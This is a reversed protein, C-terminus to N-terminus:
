FKTISIRFTGAVPDVTSNAHNLFRVTVSDNGSVWAFYSANVTMVAPPVGLSVAAGMEAGPVAAVLDAYSRSGTNPFNLTVMAVLTNTLEYVNTINFYNTATLYNTISIHNTFVFQDRITVTGEDFIPMVTARSIQNGYLMTNSVGPTIWIGYTMEAPSDTFDIRNGSVVVDSTGNTSYSWLSIGASGFEYSGCDHVQNGQVLINRGSVRIGASGTNCVINNQVSHNSLGEGNGGMDLLVIGNLRTGSIINGRISLDTIPVRGSALFIGYEWNGSILNDSINMRRGGNIFFAYMFPTGPRDNHFINRCFQLDTYDDADYSDAFVCIGYDTTDYFENDSVISRTQPVTNGQVEVGRACNVFVNHTVVWDSCVCCIAAGDAFLNGAFGRGGNEFYCRQITVFHSTKDGLLHAIGQDGFDYCKVDEFLLHANTGRMSVLSYLGNTLLDGHPRDGRFTLGRMTINTCGQIHIFDGPGAGFIEAGSGLIRINRKNLLQLPAVPPSSANGLVKPIVTYLGPGIHITDDSQVQKFANTVTRFPRDMRGRLATADDGTMAIYIANPSTGVADPALKAATVSGDPVTAAMLAFGAAAVRQDPSLQQFGNAGDDFWVRLRVDANTFLAPPIATMGALASDGLLVSYLGKVVPLAVSVPPQGGGSSGDNSWFAVTGNSNVLAFKFQGTGEFNVGSVSVRGQYNLVHATQGRAALALALGALVSAMFQIANMQVVNGLPNM